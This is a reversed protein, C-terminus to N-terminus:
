ANTHRAKIYDAFVDDADRLAISKLWYKIQKPKIFVVSDTGYIKMIKQFHTSSLNNNLPTIKEIHKLLSSENELTYSDIKANTYDFQIVYYSEVDIIKTFCFEKDSTKYVSNLLRCFVDAYDVVDSTSAYNKYLEESKIGIQYKVADEIVIQEASSLAIDNYNAPYPLNLIDEGYLSTEKLIGVRSSTALIYFSLLSSNTGIFDAIYILQEKDAEPTHIAFIDSKFTLYDPSYGYILGNKSIIKRILLHPPQFLKINTKRHTKKVDCKCTDKSTIKLTSKTLNQTPLFNQEYIYALEHKKGSIFGEGKHWGTKERQDIYMGLTPINTLRNILATIRGGGLLSSKWSHSYNVASHKDIIHFDYKDFELYLRNKNPFTRGAVLHLISKNDPRSNQVFVAATAINKRGWIKDALKTFDIVQILNYQGFIHNKFEIENQYLLPGSPQIMCLLGDPKLLKLAQVLFHFAPNEDPINIQSEYGITKKLNNFYPKRKPEKGNVPPLNFPPNGIVLDFDSDCNPTAIRYFFDQNVINGELNPFKLKGWTPPDLDVEDLMALALSFISLRIADLEIDIGFINKVLLEKLVALSPKKLEGTTKWQEYRWWQVLRKYAKVLFIGSGCSVDILKFERQPINLPMCEDVLTSVIMEPTYVIDKSNTLLEEYVSSIIEVPLHSFSYLRWLVYQNNKINADLYNALERVETTQIATRANQETDINWEFIKGNFDTALQDLLALLKGSRITDCFNNCQFHRKFYTTAFYGSKSKEDREELYKILLSQVLLRLAIHKDLGSKTQFDIYVKKLGCILDKTASQDFAFNSEGYEEWFLGNAFKESNFSSFVDATLSLVEKITAESNDSPRKRSDYISVSAKEVIIYAPTQGGNWMSVHIRHRENNTLVQNTYDFIYLQPISSRGDEFHRFFVADAGFKEKATELAFIIDPSAINADIQTYNNTFLVGSEKLSNLFTFNLKQINQKFISVQM